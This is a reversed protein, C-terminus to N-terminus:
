VGSVAYGLSKAVNAIENYSLGTSKDRKIASQIRKLTPVIGAQKCRNMYVRIRRKIEDDTLTVMKTPTAATPLSAIAAQQTPDPNPITVNVVPAPVQTQVTSKDVSFVRYLGDPSPDMRLPPLGNPLCNQFLQEFIQDVRDKSIWYRFTAGPRTNEVEPIDLQGSNVKDRLAVSLEWRSFPRNQAVFEQVQMLVATALSVSPISKM